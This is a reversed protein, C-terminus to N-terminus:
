DKSEDLCYGTFGAMSGIVVYGQAAIGSNMADFERRVCDGGCNLGHAFSVLPFKQDEAVDPRWIVAKDTDGCVYGGVVVEEIIVKYPTEVGLFSEM